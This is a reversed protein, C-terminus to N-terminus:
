RGAVAEAGAAAETGWHRLLERVVGEAIGDHWARGKHLMDLFQAQPDDSERTIAASDVWGLHKRKAAVSTAGDFRAKIASVEKNNRVASQSPFGTGIIAVSATEVMAVRDIARLYGDILPQLRIMPATGVVRRAVKHGARNVVHRLRGKRRTRQDITRVRAETWDAARKGILNNLRHAVTKQTAPWSTTQLVVFEPQLKTLHEELITWPQGAHVYFRQLTMDIPGIREVLKERVLSPWTEGALGGAGFAGSTALVLLRRPPPSDSDQM